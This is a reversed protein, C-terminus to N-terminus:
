AILGISQLDDILGNVVKKLALVDAINATLSTIMEDRHAATDYAGATAGVGGAPPASATANAVTRLATSYTQTYTSPSAPIRPISVWEAGDWCSLVNTDTSFWAKTHTAGSPRNAATGMEIIVGDIHRNKITKPVIDSQHVLRKINNELLVEKVTKKIIQKIQEENFM